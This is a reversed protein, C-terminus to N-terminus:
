IGNVDNKDILDVHSNACTLKMQHTTSNAASYQQVHQMRYHKKCPENQTSRQTYQVIRQLIHQVIRQVIYEKQDTVTYRLMTHSFSVGLLQYCANKAIVVDAKM